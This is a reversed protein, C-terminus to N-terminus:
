KLGWITRTLSNGDTRFNITISGGKVLKLLVIGATATNQLIIQKCGGSVSTSRIASSYFDSAIALIYKYTGDSTYSYPANSTVTNQIVVPTLDTGGGSGCRYFAM